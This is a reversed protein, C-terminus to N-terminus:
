EDLEKLIEKNNSESSNIRNSASNSKITKKAEEKVFSSCSAFFFLLTITFVKRM